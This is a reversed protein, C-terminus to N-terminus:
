KTVYKILLKINNEISEMHTREYHHTADVGPGICAFNVDFGQHVAASADSGYRNYVDVKYAINNKEAIEVLKNRLEFNYPGKRDKAAISVSYEDSEQGEGVTGIDIAIFETTKEPISSIGHGVEEYNSMFFNTTYKPMINNDKLYKCIAFVMAVASKNDLYRSKIFGNETIETRTDLYIFDGVNIGLELVDEKSSVREDIRVQMNEDTRLTERAVDGYIHSSAQIPIISGRFKKGHRNVIFVNEGEMGTWTGGGLKVIKLRGNPMIGKVMAGLTDVHASITKQEEDNEGKVTAILAGKNTFKTEIGMSEFEKKIETLVETTYGAPSPINLYKVMTDIVYKMDIKM